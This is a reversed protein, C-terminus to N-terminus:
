SEMKILRGACTAAIHRLGEDTVGEHLPLQIAQRYVAQAVPCPAARGLDGCYDAVEYSIGADVGAHLLARRLQSADGIAQRVFFYGNEGQMARAGEGLLKMLLRMQARRVAVRADLSDLLRSGIQAQLDMYCAVTPRVADQMSRYSDAVLKQTRPHALAHAALRALPTTLIAHEALGIAIRRWLAVGPRPMGAIRQAIRASVDAHPTLIAGGGFTNVSKLLDFSLIAGDGFSGVKKKGLESGLAQACDELLWLGHARAIDQLPEMACPRGFLHTALIARTGPGLRARVQEPDLNFTMPDIDVPVPVYGSEALLVVLARYTYAPVIIEDGPKVGLAQLLLLLGIRGSNVCHVHPVCHYRALADEFSAVAAGPSGGRGLLAGLLAALEGRYMVYRRRPIFAKM